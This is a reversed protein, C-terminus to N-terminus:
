FRQWILTYFLFFLHLIGFEASKCKYVEFAFNNIFTNLKEIADQKPNKCTFNNFRTTTRFAPCCPSTWTSWTLYSCLWKMHKKRKEWLLSQTINQRHIHNPKTFIYINISILHYFKLCVRLLYNLLDVYFGHASKWIWM